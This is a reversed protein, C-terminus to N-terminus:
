LRHWWDAGTADIGCRTDEGTDSSYHAKGTPSVITFDSDAQCRLCWTKVEREEGTEDFTVFRGAVLSSGHDDRV